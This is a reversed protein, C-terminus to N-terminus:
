RDTGRRAVRIMARGIQETTSIREPFKRRLWPLVPRAVHYFWRYLLTKSQIGHLPVIVGPRFIYVAHFPLAQLANESRGRGRAWMVNGIESSDAGDGSVYVFTMRPNLKVLTRAAELTLDHTIKKYETESKGFSPTGLCFFCADFGTLESKISSYDFLNSHVLEKLKEHRQGTARRGITQVLTVEPDLLCERLVGQGVMGTAGFLLVKM